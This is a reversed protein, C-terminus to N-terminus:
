STETVSWSFAPMRKRCAWDWRSARPVSLRQWVVQMSSSAPLTFDYREVTFVQSSALGLSTRM